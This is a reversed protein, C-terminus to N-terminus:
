GDARAPENEIVQTPLEKIVKLQNDAGMNITISIKEGNLAGEAGSGNGIGAGKQLAKFIEVRSSDQFKPDVLMAYMEPISEELTSLFKMKVREQTNAGSNWFRIQETLLAQFRGQKHITEWTTQDIKHNTLIMELPLIDMAIERALSLLLKERDANQNTTIEGM